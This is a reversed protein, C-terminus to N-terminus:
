ELSDSALINEFNGCTGIFSELEEATLGTIGVWRNITAPIILVKMSFSAM